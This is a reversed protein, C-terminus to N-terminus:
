CCENLCLRALSRYKARNLRLFASSVGNFDLGHHFQREHGARLEEEMQGIQFSFISGMLCVDSKHGNVNPACRESRLIFVVDQTVSERLYDKVGGAHTSMM